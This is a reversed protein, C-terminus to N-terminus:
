TAVGYISRGTHTTDEYATVYLNETDDYVTFSYAGNGSRSSTQMREGTNSVTLADSKHLYLNVTGGNSGSITGSVTKTITHYTMIVYISPYCTTAQSSLYRWRRSTEIDMRGVEVDEPYRKFFTRMLGYMQYLGQEPDNHTPNAYVREWAVGGEASLREVFLSHAYLAVTGSSEIAIKVGLASIFYNTEPIILATDAVTVDATAAATDMLRIPWIVTRNATGWGGSPKGCTYNIIWLGSLNWGKDTTDSNYCDASLTNRGRALTVNDDITRQHCNGGGTVAATDTISVFSQTGCRFYATAIAGVQEWYWRFASKQITVTTPEQIWLERSAKQYDSSTTAGMPSEYDQPLLLSINGANAASADFTFVVLMTFAAHNMRTVAGTSIWAYFSHTANTTFIPSGGSMLNFHAKVFRDTALAAVFNTSTQQTTTDLQVAVQFTTTGANNSENGEMLMTIHKYSISSYGLFSDLNPVTDQASGKSTPLAGVASTMPIWANMVQTTSTDDYAYTVWLLAWGNTFNFTTGTSQDMYIQLDFTHSTGTYNTTFHATFDATLHTMLNEGSHTIDNTNTVTTYGAGNVSVGLRWENITGGTATIIDTAGAEVWVKRFTKSSEPLDVTIQTFNTVSADTISALPPLPFCITKLSTAM